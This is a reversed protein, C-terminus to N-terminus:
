SVFENLADQFAKTAGQLEKEAQDAASPQQNKKTAQSPKGSAPKPKVFPTFEVTVSWSGDSDQVLQGIESPVVATVGIPDASVAPHYFEIAVKGTEAQKLIPLFETQWRYRQDAGSEGRVGDLFHLRMKFPARRGGKLKTPGDSTGTGEAVDWKLLRSAGSITCLGPTGLSGILAQDWAAPVVDPDPALM